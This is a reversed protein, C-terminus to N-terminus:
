RQKRIDNSSMGKDIPQSPVLIFCKELKMMLLPYQLLM